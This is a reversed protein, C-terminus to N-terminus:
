VLNYEPQQCQSKERFLDLAKEAYNSANAVSTLKKKDKKNEKIKLQFVNNIYKAEKKKSSNNEIKRM